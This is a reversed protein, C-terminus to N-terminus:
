AKIKMVNLANLDMSGLGRKAAIRIHPIDSPKMKKGYWTGLSVMQADAAVMDTSATVMNLPIVKGPGGPGGTTLNRTGDVVVLQPKIVTVMDVIAEDLDHRAHFPRRHYILGMMGKMSLSVRTASHSKATPVAILVDADLVESLVEMSKLERGGSVAVARYLRRSQATRVATKPISECAGAIGSLSLCDGPSQLVNDLVAIRSAGAEACMRAVEAVVRPDTNVARNPKQAFSMNPKIVVRNGPKVFKAIGGLADVAARANKAPNPGHAVVVDPIAGAHSGTTELLGVTGSALVTATTALGTKLFDRRDTRRTM